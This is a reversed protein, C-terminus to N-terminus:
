YMTKPGAPFRRHKPTWGAGVPCFGRGVPPGRLPRGTTLTKEGTPATGRPQRKPTDYIRTKNQVCQPQGAPGGRGRFGNIESSRQSDPPGPGGNGISKPHELPGLGSTCTHKHKHKHIQKSLDVVALYTSNTEGIVSQHVSCGFGTVIARGRCICRVDPGSTLFMWNNTRGRPAPQKQRSSAM